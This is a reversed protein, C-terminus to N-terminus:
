EHSTGKRSTNFSPTGALRGGDVALVTDPSSRRSSRASGSPPPPLRPRPASADWRCPPPSATRPRKARRRRTARHPHPGSRDRQGQYGPLRLRARGGPDPWRRRVQEGRLREPRCRRTRGRHLVHQRDSRRRRKGAHARNRIEPLPVSRAPQGFDRQRVGREGVRGPARSTRGGGAANNVAADLRGFRDRIQAMLAKVSDEDGVDVAMAVAKGGGSTINASSIHCAPATARPLFSTREPALWRLQSRRM